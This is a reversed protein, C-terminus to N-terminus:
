IPEERLKIEQPKFECLLKFPIMEDSTGTFDEVLGNWAVCLIGDDNKSFKLTNKEATLDEDELYISSYFFEVLNGDEDEQEVYGEPIDITQDNLQEVNSFQIPFDEIELSVQPFENQLADTELHDLDENSHIELLLRNEKNQYVVKVLSKEIFYLFEEDPHFFKITNPKM